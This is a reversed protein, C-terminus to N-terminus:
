NVFLAKRENVSELRKQHLNNIKMENRMKIKNKMTITVLNCIIYFFIFSELVIINYLINVM